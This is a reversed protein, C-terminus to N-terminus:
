CPLSRRGIATAFSRWITPASRTSSRRSRGAAGRLNLAKLYDLLLPDNLDPRSLSLPITVLAFVAINAAILSYTM